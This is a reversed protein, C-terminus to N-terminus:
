AECPVPPPQCVPCYHTGRQALRIKKIITGCSECPEGERGYVRLAFQHGGADGDPTRFDQFTTGGHEIAETLVSRVAAHLRAVDDESLRDATVAPHLDARHLAEDVYINGLGAVFAQDLLLPKIMRRRTQLDRALRDLTWHASLPEPGLGGTVADADDLLWVRGFTRQDELRMARGSALELLLRTHKTPSDGAQVICLRGSMRFHVVLWGRPELAALLYKGRRGFSSFRRGEIMEAFATADPSAITRELLVHAKTVTDGAARRRLCRAITEVEPLEPM